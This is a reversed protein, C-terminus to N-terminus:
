HELPKVGAIGSCRVGNWAQCGLCLLSIEVVMRASALRAVFAAQDSDAESSATHSQM